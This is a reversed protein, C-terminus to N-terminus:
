MPRRCHSPRCLERVDEKMNVSRFGARHVGYKTRLINCQDVKLEYNKSKALSHQCYNMLQLRCVRLNRDLRDFKKQSNRDALGLVHILPFFLHLLRYSLWGSSRLWVLDSSCWLRLDEYSTDSFNSKRTREMQPKSNLEIDVCLTFDNLIWCLCTCYHGRGALRQGRREDKELGQVGLWVRPQGM